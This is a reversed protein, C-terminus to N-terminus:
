LLLLFCVSTNEILCPACVEKPTRCCTLLATYTYEEFAVSPVGLDKLLHQLASVIGIPKTRTGHRDRYARLVNSITKDSPLEALSTSPDLVQDNQDQTETAAAKADIAERFRDMQDAVQNYFKRHAHGLYVPEPTPQSTLHATNGLIDEMVADGMGYELSPDDANHDLLDKNNNSDEGAELLQKWRERAFQRRPGAQSGPASHKDRADAMGKMKRNYVKRQKKTKPRPKTFASARDHRRFRLQKQQLQPVNNQQQTSRTTMFQSQDPDWAVTALVSFDHQQQQQQLLPSSPLGIRLRASVRLAARALHM